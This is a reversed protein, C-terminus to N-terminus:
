ELILRAFIPLYPLPPIIEAEYVGLGPSLTLTGGTATATVVVSGDARAYLTGVTGDPAGSVTVTGGAIVPDALAPRVEWLGDVLMLEAADKFTVGEPLEIFGSPLTLGSGGKVPYVGTDDLQVYHIM